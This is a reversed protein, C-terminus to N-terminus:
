CPPLARRGRWLSVSGPAGEARGRRSSGGPLGRRARAAGANATSPPLNCGTMATTARRQLAPIEQGEAEGLAPQLTAATIGNAPVLSLHSRGPEGLQSTGAALAQQCELGVQQGCELGLAVDSHARLGTDMMTIPQKGSLCNEAHRLRGDLGFNLYGHSGCFPFEPYAPTVVISQTGAKFTSSAVARDLRGVKGRLYWLVM